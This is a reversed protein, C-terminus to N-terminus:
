YEDECEKEEKTLEQASTCPIKKVSVVAEVRLLQVVLQLVHVVVALKSGVPEASDHDTVSGHDGLGLLQGSRVMLLMHTWKETFRRQEGNKASCLNAHLTRPVSLVMKQVLTLVQEAAQCSHSTRYDSIATVLVTEFAGGCSVTLLSKSSVHASSYNGLEVFSHTQPSDVAKAKGACGSMNRNVIRDKDEPELIGSDAWLSTKLCERVAKLAKYLSQCLQDCMGESPSCVVLHKFPSLLLSNGPLDIMTCIKRGMQVFSCIRGEFFCRAPVAESLNTLVPTGTLDSLFMVKEHPLCQVSISHERCLGQVFQPVEESCLLVHVGASKLSRLVCEVSTRKQSLLNVVNESTLHISIDNGGRAKDTEDFNVSLLAFRKSTVAGTGVHSQCISQLNAELLVGQCVRSKQQPQTAVKSHYIDFHQLVHVLQLELDCNGPIELSLFAVLYDTFFPVMQKQLCTQLSGKLVNRVFSVVNEDHNRISCAKVKEVVMKAIDEFDSSLFKSMELSLRVRLVANQGNDGELFDAIDKLIQSLYLIFTKSGDRHISSYSRLSQMIFHAVPHALHLSSLITFGDRTVMVKGTPTSLLTQQGGPGLLGQVLSALTKSINVMLDLSIDQKMVPGSTAGEM